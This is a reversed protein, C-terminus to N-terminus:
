DPKAGGDHSSHFIIIAEQAREQVSGKYQPPVLVGDALAVPLSTLFVVPGFAVLLAARTM